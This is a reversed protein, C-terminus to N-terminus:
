ASKHTKRYIMFGAVCLVLVVAAIIAIPIWPINTGLVGDGGSSPTSQVVAFSSLHSSHFMLFYEGMLNVYTANMNEKLEGNSVYWVQLFATSEGEALKYPLWIEVSGGGFYVIAGGQSALGVDFMLAGKDYAAGDDPTAARKAASIKVSKTWDVSEFSSKNFSITVERDGEVMTSIDFTAVTGSNIMTQFEDIQEQSLSVEDWTDLCWEAIFRVDSTIVTGYDLLEGKVTRWGNFYYDEFLESPKAPAPPLAITSGSPYV